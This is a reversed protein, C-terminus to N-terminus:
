SNCRDKLLAKGYEKWPKPLHGLGVFRCRRTLHERSVVSGSRRVPGPSFDDEDYTSVDADYFPGSRSGIFSGNENFVYIYGRAKGTPKARRAGKQSRRKTRASPYEEYVRM